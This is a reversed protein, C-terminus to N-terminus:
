DTLSPLRLVGALGAHILRGKASQPATGTWECIRQVAYDVAVHDPIITPISVCYRGGTVDVVVFRMGDHRGLGRRTNSAKAVAWRM